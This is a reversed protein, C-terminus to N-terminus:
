SLNVGGSSNRLASPVPLELARIAAAMSRSFRRSAASPLTSSFFSFPTRGRAEPALTVRNPMREWLLRSPELKPTFAWPAYMLRSCARLWLLVSKALVM